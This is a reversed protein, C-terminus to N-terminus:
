ALHDPVVPSENSSTMAPHGAVAAVSIRMLYAITKEGHGCM